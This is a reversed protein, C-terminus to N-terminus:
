FIHRWWGRPLKDGEFRWRRRYESRAVRIRWVVFAVLALGLLALVGYGVVLRAIMSDRSGGARWPM